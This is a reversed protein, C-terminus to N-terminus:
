EVQWPLLFEGETVAVTQGEPNKLTGSFIGKVTSSNISTITLSFNTATIEPGAEFGSEGETLIYAASLNDGEVTYNGTTLVENTLLAISFSPTATSINNDLGIFIYAHMGDEELAGAFGTHFSATENNLKANLFYNDPDNDSDDNSCAITLVTLLFFLFKFRSKM